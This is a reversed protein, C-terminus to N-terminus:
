LGLKLPYIVIIRRKRKGTNEKGAFEFAACGTM